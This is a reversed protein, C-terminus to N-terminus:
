QLYGSSVLLPLQLGSLFTRLGATLTTTRGTYSACLGSTSTLLSAVLFSSVEGKQPAPLALSTLLGPFGRQLEEPVQTHVSVSGETREM